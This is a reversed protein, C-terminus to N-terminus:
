IIVYSVFNEIKKAATVLLEIGAFCSQAFKLSCDPKCLVPFGLQILNPESVLVDAGKIANSFEALFVVHLVLRCWTIYVNYTIGNTTDEDNKM